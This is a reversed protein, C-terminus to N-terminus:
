WGRKKGALGILDSMYNSGRSFLIGTLISGALPIRSYIGFFRFIDLEFAIATAVGLIMALLCQVPFDKNIFKRIYCITGEIAIAMFMFQFVDDM